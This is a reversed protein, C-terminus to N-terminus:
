KLVVASQAALTIRRGELGGEGLSFVSQGSLGMLQDEALEASREEGSPNIAVIHVGRRYIFLRDGYTAHLVNFSGDAQLDPTKHRLAILSKIFNLLSGEDESQSAVTPAQGGEVPLYLADAEATSFGLNKSDDWQMPTRSGTRQYGGEKTQLNRYKMGIEDGYYLFPVGPMTYLMTFFLRRERDDLLFNIRPTDHNGSILSVYGKGRVAAFRAEYDRLFETIEGKGDKRFYTNDTLELEERWVKEIDEGDSVTNVTRGSADEKLYKERLADSKTKGDCVLWEGHNIFDRTLKSYGPGGNNLTFDMHFGAKIAREANDWESVIAAEPYDRDLMERVERWIKQTYDKNETDNKVLSDAMDVRFGDCGMDLWFRMIDKLAEVSARPGAADTAQQWSEKVEGYGYNLAPQCKFFNLIYAGDREAEGAVYNQAAGQFGFSTWIYRDSYENRRAKSSQKFWEHEESTHGPVLDLLVRVGAKHAERFLRALDENTGYRPAVKKYDRVDYGADKMPSDFCPNLWLANVGLSTIYPLKEIIGEIDGIGDGNSDYYSQPYIEYFVADNLWTPM